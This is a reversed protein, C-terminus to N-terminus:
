QTSNLSQLGADSLFISWQTKFGLGTQNLTCTCASWIGGYSVSQM